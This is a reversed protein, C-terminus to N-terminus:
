GGFVKLVSPDRLNDASSWVPNRLPALDLSGKAASVSAHAQSAVIVGLARVATGRRPTAFDIAAGAGLLTRAVRWGVPLRWRRCNASRM